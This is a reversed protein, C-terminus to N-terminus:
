IIGNLAKGDVSTGGNGCELCWYDIIEQEDYIEIEIEGICGKKM